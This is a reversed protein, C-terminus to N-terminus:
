IDFALTQWPQNECQRFYSRALEARIEGGYSEFIRRRENEFEQWISESGAVFRADILSTATEISGLTETQLDKIERVSHGIKFNMDWLPYLIGSALQEQGQGVIIMLDIDSFRTQEGRGTSGHTFVALPYQDERSGAESVLSVLAQDLSSTLNSSLVLGALEHSTPVTRDRLDEFARLLDNSRSM